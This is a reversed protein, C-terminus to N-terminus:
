LSEEIIKTNISTFNVPREMSKNIVFWIIIAAILSVVKRFINDLFVVKFLNRISWEM